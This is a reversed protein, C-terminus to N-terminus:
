GPQNELAPVPTSPIPQQIPKETPKTETPSGQLKEQILSELKGLADQTKVDFGNGGKYYRRFLSEYKQMQNGFQNFADKAERYDGQDFTDVISSLILMIQNKIETDKLGKMRQYTDRMMDSFQRVDGPHWGQHIDEDLLLYAEEINGEAAFANIQDITAQKADLGAQLKDIDVGFFKFAQQYSKTKVNKKVIKLDSAISKMEKPLEVMARIKNIEEWVQANWYDQMAERQDRGIAQTISNKHTELLALLKEIREVGSAGGALKAMQKKYRTLEQQQRKIEQFVKNLEQPPVFEERIENISNWLQQSRCDDMIGRQEDAPAQNFRTLCEQAGNVIEKLSTQWEEAGKVKALQKLLNNAEKLQNNFENIFDKKEQLPVFKGRVENMSDWLRQNRCDDMIGRQEDAPAQSIQNVCNSAASVTEKLTVQLEEAGKAAVLQKLMQNAEKQLNNFENNFDRIEQQNLSPTQKEGYAENVPMTVPVPMPASVSSKEQAAVVLPLALFVAVAAVKLLRSLSQSM